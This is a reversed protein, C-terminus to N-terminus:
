SHPLVLRIPGPLRRFLRHFEAGATGAVPARIREAVDQRMRNPRSRPGIHHHREKQCWYNRWSNTCRSRSQRFRRGAAQVGAAHRTCRTPNNRVERLLRAALRRSRGEAVCMRTARLEGFQEVKCRGKCRCERIGYMRRFAILEAVSLRRLRDLMIPEPLAAILRLCLRLKATISKATM